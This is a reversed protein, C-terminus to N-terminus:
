SPLVNFQLVTHGSMLRTTQFQLKRDPTDRCHVTNSYPAQYSSDWSGHTYMTCQVRSLNQARPKRFPDTTTTMEIVNRMKPVKDVFPDASQSGLCAETNINLTERQM